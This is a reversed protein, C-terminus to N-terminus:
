NLNMICTFKGGVEIIQSHESLQAFTLVVSVECFISLLIRTNKSCPHIICFTPFTMEKLLLALSMLCPSLTLLM